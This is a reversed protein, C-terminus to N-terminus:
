EPDDKNALEVTVGRLTATALLSDVSERADQRLRWHGVKGLEVCADHLAEVEGIARLERLRVAVSNRMWKKRAAPSAFELGLMGALHAGLESTTVGDPGADALFKRITAAIVGRKGHRGMWGNIARVQAVEVGAYDSKLLADCAELHAHAETLEAQLDVLMATLRQVQSDARARRDILGALFAPTRRAEYTLVPTVM